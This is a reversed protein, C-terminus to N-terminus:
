GSNQHNEGTVVELIKRIMENQEEFKQSIENLLYQAQKDNATSVDNHKSQQRNELLNEYGLLFSAVALIDLSKFGNSDNM